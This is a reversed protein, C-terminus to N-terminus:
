EEIFFHKVKGEDWGTGERNRLEAVLRISRRNAGQKLKPTARELDLIWPDTWVKTSFGNGIQM